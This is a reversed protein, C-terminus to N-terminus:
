TLAVPSGAAHDRAVDEPDRKRSGSRLGATFTLSVWARVKADVQDPDMLSAGDPETSFVVTFHNTTPVHLMAFLRNYSDNFEYLRSKAALGPLQFRCWEAVGFPGSPYLNTGGTRALRFNMRTAFQDV